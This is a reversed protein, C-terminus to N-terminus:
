TMREKSVLPAYTSAAVLGKESRVHQQVDAWSHAEQGQYNPILKPKFVHRNERDTMIAQRERRFQREKNTKSAWGGSLGDKLVFGVQGPDFVIELAAGDQDVLLSEGSVVADYEAFSLRKTLQAGDQKRKVTYIPM